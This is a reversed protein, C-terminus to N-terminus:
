YCLRNPFLIKPKINILTIWYHNLTYVYEIIRGGNLSSPRDNGCRRIIINPLVKYTILGKNICIIYLNIVNEM